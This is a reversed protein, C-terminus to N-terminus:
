NIEMIECTVDHICSKLIKQNGKKNLAIETNKKHKKCADVVRHVYQM